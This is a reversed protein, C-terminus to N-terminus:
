DTQEHFNVIEERHEQGLLERCAYDGTLYLLGNGSSVSADEKLIEGAIMHSTLYTSVYQHLFPEQNWTVPASCVTNRFTWTEVILKVPLSFGGPLTLTHEQYMKDCTTGSIGSDKSLFIRKKGFILSFKKQVDTIEGKALVEAPTVATIKHKTEGYIEAEAQQALLVRGCDTYGSVLTEGQTVAQGVKCLATGRTVTIETVIGDRSAVIHGIGPKKEEMESTSRERVSIVATCGTTNIGAWQLDPLAALLTNKMQESRVTKRSAGFHIGCHEAQELILNQPLQVNGEVRIFYIRGPLFMSLFLLIVIGSVLVPRSRLRQFIWYLGSKKRIRMMEERKQLLKQLDPLQARFLSFSITVPDQIELHYLGIGAQNCATITAPPDATTVETRIMGRLSNWINM